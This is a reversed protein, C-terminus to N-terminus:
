VESVRSYQIGEDERPHGSTRFRLM